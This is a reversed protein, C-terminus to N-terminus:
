RDSEDPPGATPRLYIREPSGRFLRPRNKGVTGDVRRSVMRRTNGGRRKGSEELVYIRQRSSCVAFRERDSELSMDTFCHEILYERSRRDRVVRVSRGERGMAVLKDHSIELLPTNEIEASPRRIEGRNESAPDVHPRAGPHLIDGSVRQLEEEGVIGHDNGERADEAFEHRARCEIRRPQRPKEM